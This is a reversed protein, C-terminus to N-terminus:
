RDKAGTKVSDFIYYHEWITTVNEWVAEPSYINEWATDLDTHQELYDLTAGESLIGLEELKNTLLATVGVGLGFGLLGAGVYPATAVGIRTAASGIAGYYLQPAVMGATFLGFGITAFTDHIWDGKEKRISQIYKALGATWIVWRGKSINSVM